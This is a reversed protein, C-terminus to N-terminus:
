WLLEAGIYKEKSSREKNKYMNMNPEQVEIICNLIEKVEMGRPSSIYEPTNLLDNLIDRYLTAIHPGKYIKM